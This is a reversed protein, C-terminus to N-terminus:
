AGADGEPPGDPPREEDQDQVGSDQRQAEQNEHEDYIMGDNNGGRQGHFRTDMDRMQQAQTMITAAKVAANRRRMHAELDGLVASDWEAKAVETGLWSSVPVGGHTIREIKYANVLHPLCRGTAWLSAAVYSVGVARAIAGISIDNAECWAMLPTDCPPRQNVKGGKKYLPHNIGGAPSM